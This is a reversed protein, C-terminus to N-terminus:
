IFEFTNKYIDMQIIVNTTTINPIRHIIKITEGLEEYDRMNLQALLQYEGSTSTIYRIFPVKKLEEIIQDIHQPAVKLQIIAAAKIGLTIPNVVGVVEIIDNEVMNNYRTRVTKETVDLNNAIEAFSMRGNKSLFKIIKKDLNDIVEKTIFTTM